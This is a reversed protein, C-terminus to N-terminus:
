RLIVLVRQRPAMCPVSRAASTRASIRSLAASLSVALSGNVWLKLNSTASGIHVYIRKGQWSEPVAFSRRYSGVYNNREEIFPPNNAFQNTWPYSVNTYIKDGYGNMEFLGPVPFSTWDSDDYGIAYFGEPRENANTVFRFRWDGEMSLYLGSASKDAQRALDMNEYAFYDSVTEKRNIQNVEPDLWEPQQAAVPMVGAFAVLTMLLKRMDNPKTGRFYCFIM